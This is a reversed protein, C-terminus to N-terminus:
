SFLGRFGLWVAFILNLVFEGLWLVYVVQARKSLAYIYFGLAISFGVLWGHMMLVYAVRMAQEDGASFGLWWLVVLAGLLLANGALLGSAWPDRLLRRWWIDVPGSPAVAATAQPPALPSTVMSTDEHLLVPAPTPEPSIEKPTSPAPSPTVEGEPVQPASPQEDAATSVAEDTEGLGERVAQLFDTVSAPTLLWCIGEAEIFVPRSSATGFALVARGDDTQGAGYVLGPWWGRPVRVRHPYDKLLGAWTLQDWPIRQVERDWQVELGSDTARYRLRGLLWAGYVLWPLPLLALGVPGAWWPFGQGTQMQRWAVWGTALVGVSILLVLLFYLSQWRRVHAPRFERVNSM